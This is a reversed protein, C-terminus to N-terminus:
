QLNLVKGLEEDGNGRFKIYGGGPIFTLEGFYIRGNVAYFDVRVFKFDASLKKAYEVMQNFAAPREWKCASEEQYDARQISFPAGNLDYYTIAGHGHGANVGYFVPRGNFCWFKYDILGDPGNALYPEIFIKKPIPKYHFELLHLYDTRMWADVKRRAAEKDLKGGTVIINMGSGHNCKLVYNQPLAKFDIHAFNDYTGLLPIGLDEGTKEKVYERVAIKDACRTKLPTSDYVKLWALKECFTKPHELNLAYGLKQKFQKKVDEIHSLCYKTISYPVDFRRAINWTNHGYKQLPLASPLNGSIDAFMYAALASACLQNSMFPFHSGAGEVLALVAEGFYKARATNAWVITDCEYIPASGTAGILPLMSSFRDVDEFPMKRLRPWRPLEEGVTKAVPHRKLLVGKNALEFLGRISGIIQISSDMYVVRKATTYRFPRFKANMHRFRGGFETWPDYIVHWVSGPAAKFNKNDTVCIYKVGADVILPERLVNHEGYLCTLVAKECDVKAPLFETRPVQYMRQFMAKRYPLKDGSYLNYDKLAGIIYSTYVEPRPFVLSLFMEVTYRDHIWIKKLRDKENALGMLAFREKLAKGDFGQFSGVYHYLDGRLASWSIDFSHYSYTKNIGSRLMPGIARVNEPASFLGCYLLWSWYFIDLAGYGKRTSDAFLPDEVRTVGKFHMYYVFEGTALAHEAAEKITDHEWSDAQPVIRFDVQAHGCSLFAVAVKMAQTTPGNSACRIHIVNVRDMVNFYRLMNLHFIECRGLLDEKRGRYFWHIFLEGKPSAYVPMRYANLTTLRGLLLKDAASPKPPALDKRKPLSKDVKYEVGPIGALRGHVFGESHLVVVKEKKALARRIKAQNSLITTEPEYAHDVIIAM